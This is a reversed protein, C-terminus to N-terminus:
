RLSPLSVDHPARAIYWPQGGSEGGPILDREVDDIHASYAWTTPERPGDHNNLFHETKQNSEMMWNQVEWAQAKMAEGEKKHKKYM